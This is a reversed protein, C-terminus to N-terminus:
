SCGWDPERRGPAPPHRLPPEGPRAWAQGGPGQQRHANEQQQDTPPRSSQLRSRPRGAGASAGRASSPLQGDGAEATCGGDGHQGEVVQAAIGLLLVEGVPDGLIQDRPERAPALERHDGPVRAEGVLALRHVHLLHAPLQADAVHHLPAHAPRPVPHPDAGLEDVGGRTVVDPGLGVVALQPVDECELVLDGLRDQRCHPRLERCDSCSRAM